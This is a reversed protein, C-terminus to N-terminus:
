HKAIEVAYVQENDVGEFNARFIIWKEDPSFHVNPELKYHHNKMNVLKESKFRDGNPKFLYIWEGDPAKAVQGPDGGDGCFTQEDKSVNFHISWENREMEYIRDEKGTKMDFAALFFTKGKPKQLDFWEHQGGIGFFEHGAIENPMTRVHMLTNKLTKININWIRDNKEWPGEHCYSLIDPDVPSFLLHNTWENERHIEKLEGTKVNLTYLTHEIHADYIRNFFQSKEPYQKLIEREQDGTAKVCALYTGDANVTGVRGKFSPDFAYIFRNKGTIANVAWVSDGSQYFADHTKPCVMEGAIHPHHTLQKVELTKLNVTFLQNGMEKTTSGSFVMLDGQKEGRPVFCYNNFYFSGNTTGPRRVLRIVKHGTDKDIWEDPMAKGGTELVPIQQGNAVLAATMQLGCLSTIVIKKLSKM